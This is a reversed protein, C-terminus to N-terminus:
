QIARGDSLRLGLVLSLVLLLRLILFLMATKGGASSFGCRGERGEFGHTAGGIGVHGKGHMRLHHSDM